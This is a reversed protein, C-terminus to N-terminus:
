STVYINRKKQAKPKNGWFIRWDHACFCEGDEHSCDYPAIEDPLRALLFSSPYTSARQRESPNTM